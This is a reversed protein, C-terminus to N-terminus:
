PFTAGRSLIVKNPNILQNYPLLYKERKLM